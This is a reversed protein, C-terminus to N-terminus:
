ATIEIWYDTIETIQGAISAHYVTGLKDSPSAAIVDCMKVKQKLHVAPEAPAGAHRNVPIRVYGVSQLGNFPLKEAYRTLGLKKKVTPISVKVNEYQSNVDFGKRSHPNKIGKAALEKRYAAFIKRPSLRMFDCAVLECLGCQSCLFASTIHQTPDSQNYDITRMTMHPYLKHGILNRPCLDSCRFCQCCASKSQKIMQSLPKKNMEIIFHDQPLAIVGSTTKSIGQQLNEIIKGMMPGGDILVIDPRTSGGAMAILDAYTTGIPVEVVQPERVEGSITVIRETVPKGHVAHAIQALSLVNSVVVGVHLPIGGEPIVRQTVDYVLLFEDGAPYYNELEHLTISSDEPLVASIATVVDRYHGKVAIIGKKAGTATMALEMGEVILSAREKMLTKDSELLPECESGNAIITDVKADLKVYTPFGGGGAGIIGANRVADVIQKPSKTM